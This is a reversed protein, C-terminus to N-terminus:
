KIITHGKEILLGELLKYAHEETDAYKVAGSTGVKGADGKSWDVQAIFGEEPESLKKVEIGLNM